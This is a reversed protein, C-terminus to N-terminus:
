QISEAIESLNDLTKDNYPFEHEEILNKYKRSLEEM